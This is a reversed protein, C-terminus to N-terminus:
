AKKELDEILSGLEEVNEVIYNAKCNELEERSGFGWLVGISNAGIKHSANIDTYRDGIMFVKSKDEVKLENLTYKMIEEKSTRSSDESSGSILDFYDLDFHKIIAIAQDEVKSTAVALTNNKSIQKLLERIGVYPINEYKGQERYYERFYDIAKNVKEDDLNFDGKFTENLPPGIYKRLSNDDRKELNMKKITYKFANIIGEQSDTLTGDLDFLFIM